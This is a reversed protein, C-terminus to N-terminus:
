IGVQKAKKSETFSNKSKEFDNDSDLITKASKRISFDIDRKAKDWGRRGLDMLITEIQTEPMARGDIAFRFECWKVWHTAIEMPIEFQNKSRAKHTHTHTIGNGKGLEREVERERELLSDEPLVVTPSRSDENKSAFCQTEEHKECASDFLSQLRSKTPKNIVQHSKFAPIHGVEGKTSHKRIECYGIESLERLAVTIRQYDMEFPFVDGRILRADAEFYGDDDAINLLAIALLKAFDSLNGIKINRWFDPKLTRIRAV